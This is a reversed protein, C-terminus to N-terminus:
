NIQLKYSYFFLRYVHNYTVYISKLVSSKRVVSLPQKALAKSQLDSIGKCTQISEHYWKCFKPLACSTSKSENDHHLKSQVVALCFQETAGVKCTLPPATFLLM